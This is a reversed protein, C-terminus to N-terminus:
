PNLRTATWAGCVFSSTDASKLARSWVARDHVRGPGEVWLEVSEPWLRFGGWHPPRPIDASTSSSLVGFRQETEMVQRALQARSALPQSQKSAWAGVRNGLPRAAFYVDSEDAPSKLVRGTMRVQRQLTDWHFVVAAHPQVALQRGKDSEYNTFFVLYGPEVVVRKCLVIRAAPVRHEDITALVMANPNPQAKAQQATAFWDDFLPFPDAPLPEPLFDNANM